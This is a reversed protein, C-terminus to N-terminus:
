PSRSRGLTAAPAGVLTTLPVLLTTTTALPFTVMPTSPDFM